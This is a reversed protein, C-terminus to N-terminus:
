ITGNPSVGYTTNGTMNLATQIGQMANLGIIGKLALNSTNAQNGLFGDASSRCERGDISFAISLKPM